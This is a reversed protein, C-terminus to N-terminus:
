KALQSRLMWAAKEHFGLRKILLDSTVDDHLEQTRSILPRGLKSMHEHGDLLEEIMKKCSISPKTDGIKSRKSFSSFTADVLGGLSRIREALEDAAGALEEYHKELLLHVSYFEPGTVNWHYNQTKLYLGYSNALFDNLSEIVENLIKKSLGIEIEM